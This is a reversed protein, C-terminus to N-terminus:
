LARAFLIAMLNANSAKLFKMLDLKYFSGVMEHQVQVWSGMNTGAL